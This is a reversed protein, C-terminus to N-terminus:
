VKADAAPLLLKGSIETLFKLVGAMDLDGPDKVPGSLDVQAVRPHIAALEGAVKMAQVKADSDLLVVFVPYKTTLRALLSAQLASMSNGFLCTARVKLNAGYLNIKMADMPGECVILARGDNQALCDYDLLTHKINHIARPKYGEKHSLTKYRLPAVEEKLISRATWNVLQGQLYIPIILRMAWEGITCFRLKYHSALAPIHGTPFRRRELYNWFLGGFHQSTLPFFYNPMVLPSAVSATELSPPTYTPRRAGFKTVEKAAIAEDCGLFQQILPIPNMGRHHANRWCSYGPKDIDLCLGLHESNDSDGCWVCHTNVWGKTTHPGKEIYPIKHADLFAKWDFCLM